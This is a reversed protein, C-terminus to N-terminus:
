LDHLVGQIPRTRSSLLRNISISLRLNHLNHACELFVFVRWFILLLEIRQKLLHQAIHHHLFLQAYWHATSASLVLPHNDFVLNFAIQLSIEGHQGSQLKQVSNTINRTIVRKSTWKWHRPM